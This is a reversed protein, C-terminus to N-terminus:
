KTADKVADAAKDAAKDVEKKAADAADKAKDAAKDIEQKAADAANNIKDGLTEEKKCGVFPVALMAALVLLMLKKM